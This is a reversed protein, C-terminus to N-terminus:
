KCPHAINFIRLFFDIPNWTINLQAYKTLSNELPVYVVHLNVQTCNLLRILKM